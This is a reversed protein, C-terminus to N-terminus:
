IHIARCFLWSFQAENGPSSPSYNLNECCISLSLRACLYHADKTKKWTFFNCNKSLDVKAEDTGAVDVVVVCAPGTAVGAGVVPVGPAGVGYVYVVTILPTVVATVAINV